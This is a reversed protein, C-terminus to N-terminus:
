GTILRRVSSIWDNLFLQWEEVLPNNKYSAAVTSCVVEWYHGEAHVARHLSSAGVDRLRLERAKASLRFFLEWRPRTSDDSPQYQSLLNRLLVEDGAFASMTKTDSSENSSVCDASMRRIAGDLQLSCITAVKDGDDGVRKEDLFLSACAVYEQVLARAVATSLQGVCCRYIAQSFLHTLGELSSMVDLCTTGSQKDSLYKVGGRWEGAVAQVFCSFCPVLYSPVCADKGFLERALDTAAVILFAMVEQGQPHHQAFKQVLHSVAQRTKPLSDCGSCAEGHIGADSFLCAYQCCSFSIISRVIPGVVRLRGSAAELSSCALGCSQSKCLSDCELPSGCRLPPANVLINALLQVAALWKCHLSYCACSGTSCNAGETGPTVVLRNQFGPVSSTTCGPLHHNASGDCIHRITRVWRSAPFLACVESRNGTGGGNTNNVADASKCDFDEGFVSLVSSPQTVDGVVGFVSFLGLIGVADELMSWWEAAGKTMGALAMVLEHCMGDMFTHATFVANPETAANCKEFCVRILLLLPCLAGAPLEPATTGERNVMCRRYLAYVHPITAILQQRIDCLSCRGTQPGDSSCPVAAETMVENGGASDDRVISACSSFADYFWEALDGQLM